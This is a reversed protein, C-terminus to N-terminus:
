AARIADLFGAVQTRLSTTERGLREADALVNQAVEGTSAASQHAGGVNETAEAACRAADQSRAAIAQTTSGQQQASVAVAVSSESMRGITAVVAGIAAGTGATAERIATVLASIEETAKSTQNALSKVESAVVAFGKGADGARAAEITANLALLNTQAAIDSILKVVENIREAANTLSQVRTEAQRTERAADEALRATDGVRDAMTGISVSLEEVAGAISNVNAAAQETASAAAESQAGALEAMKSMEEAAQALEAASAALTEIEGRATADFARVLEDVARRRAEKQEREALKEAELAQTRQANQRFVTLARALTGVEDRRDAGEIEIAMDGAALMQMRSAMRNIPRAVQAIGIWFMLSGSIVLGLLAAGLTLYRLRETADALDATAAALDEQYAGALKEAADLAKLRAAKGEVQSRQVAAKVEGAAALKFVEESNAARESVASLFQEILAQHQTSKTLERVTTMAREARAIDDRYLKAYQAIADSNGVSLLVNKENIAADAFHLQAEIAYRLQPARSGLAVDTGAEFVDVAFWMVAIIGLLSLATVAVPLSLKTPIKWDGLVQNVSM